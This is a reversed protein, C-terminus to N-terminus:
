VIRPPVGQAVRFQMAGAAAKTKIYNCCRCMSSYSCSSLSQRPPPPPPAARSAAPSPPIRVPSAFAASHCDVSHFFASRPCRATLAILLPSHLTMVGSSPALARFLFRIRNFNDQITLMDLRVYSARQSIQCGTIRRPPSRPLNPIQQGELRKESERVYLKCIM